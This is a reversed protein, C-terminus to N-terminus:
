IHGPWRVGAGARPATRAWSEQVVAASELAALGDEADADAVQAIVNETAPNVVDFRGGGRPERWTGNIFVETPAIALARAVVSNEVSVAEMVVGGFTETFLIWRLPELVTSQWIQGM